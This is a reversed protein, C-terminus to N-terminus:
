RFRSRAPSRAGATAMASASPRTGSSTAGPTSGRASGASPPTAGAARIWAGCTSAAASTRTTTAGGTPAAGATALAAAIRAAVADIGPKNQSGSEMNVLEQWLSLMEERHEDIFQCVKQKSSNM